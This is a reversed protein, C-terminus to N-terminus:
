FLTYSNDGMADTTAGTNYDSQALIEVTGYTYNPMSFQVDVYRVSSTGPSNTSTSSLTFVGAWRHDGGGVYAEDITKLSYADDSTGTGTLAMKTVESGWYYTVYAHFQYNGWGWWNQRIRVVNQVSVSNQGNNYSRVHRALNKGDHTEQILTSWNKNNPKIWVDGNNEITMRRAMGSGSTRTNFGIKGDDKNTTDEGALFDIAAVDATNWRGVIYGCSNNEASRNANFILQPYVNNSAADVTIGHGSTAIPVKIGSSTTEFKKSNDYYLEVAGGGNAKINTDNWNAGNYNQLYFSSATHDSKLRWCDANDDGEDAYIYVHCSEGEDGLINISQSDTALRKTGDYYLEAAGDSIGRFYKEGGSNQLLLDPSRIELKSSTSRINCGTGDHFIQLDDGAGWLVKMSDQLAIHGSPYIDGTVDIGNSRTNLKKSNDFYLEVNGNGNCEINREYSGSAYNYITFESNTDVSLRWKDADDDGEDAYLLLEANQGETGQVIVGNAKTEFTKGNDYYLEVAGNNIFKAYNEQSTNNRFYIDNVSQMYIHGAGTHKIHTNTNAGHDITFEGSDGFEMLVGDALKCGNATTEFKKTGDYYLDTAGDAVARIMNETHAANQIFVASGGLQLSGTGSDTIFSDSGNHYLELDNGTGFRIKESDLLDIPTNLGRDDIKTLAM